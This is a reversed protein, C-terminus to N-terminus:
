VFIIFNETAASVCHTADKDYYMISRTFVFHMAGKSSRPVCQNEVLMVFIWVLLCDNTVFFLGINHEIKCFVLDIPDIFLPECM